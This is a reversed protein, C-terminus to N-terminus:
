SSEMSQLGVADGLFYADGVVVCGVGVGAKQPGKLQCSNVKIM